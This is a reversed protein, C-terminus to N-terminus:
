NGNVKRIDEVVKDLDPIEQGHVGGIFMLYDAMKKNIPNKHQLKEVTKKAIAHEKTAKMNYNGKKNNIEIM